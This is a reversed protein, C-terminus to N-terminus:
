EAMAENGLNTDKEKLIEQERAYKNIVRTLATRFGALHTGGEPTHINNVFTVVKESYDDKKYQM